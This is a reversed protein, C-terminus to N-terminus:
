QIAKWDRFIEGPLVSAPSDIERAGAFRALFFAALLALAVLASKLIAESVFPGPSLSDAKSKM